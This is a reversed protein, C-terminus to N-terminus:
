VGGDELARAIRDYITNTESDMALGEPLSHEPLHITAFVTNTQGRIVSVTSTIGNAVYIDKSRPGVTIGQPSRGVRITATVTNTQGDIVSVTDNGTNTVYLTNTTPNV